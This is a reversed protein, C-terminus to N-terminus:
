AIYALVMAFLLMLPADPTKQAIFIGIPSALAGTLAILSAARYRVRGLKLALLAGIAASVSVAFLAIPAAEAVVLHLGFILLPVAIIAGGAGTLALIVGVLSGLLVSIIQITQM